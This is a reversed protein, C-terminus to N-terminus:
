RSLVIPFQFGPTIGGIRIYYELMIRKDGLEGDCGLHLERNSLHITAYSM